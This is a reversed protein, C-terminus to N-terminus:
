CNVHITILPSAEAPKKPEFYDGNSIQKVLRKFNSGDFPMAGYIWAVLLRSRDKTPPEGYSKLLPTLPSGCFTKLLTADSFVNSLGFDAIKANFKEDLLINELKLDKIAIIFQLLLRDLYGRAEDEELIKRENLYDYYSEEQIKLYQFFWLLIDDDDDLNKKFRLIESHTGEYIHIINPHRVSSMIQIERRIRILDAETEIKSKQYNKDGGSFFRLKLIFFKKEFEHRIKNVEQGTEKDIGLQVKGYWNELSILDNGFDDGTTRCGRANELPGMIGRSQNLPDNHERLVM